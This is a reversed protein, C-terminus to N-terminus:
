ELDSEPISYGEIPTDLHANYAQRAEDQSQILAYRRVADNDRETTYALYLQYRRELETKTREISNLARRLLPPVLGLPASLVTGRKTEGGLFKEYTLADGPALADRPFPTNRFQNLNRVATALDAKLQRRVSEHAIAVPTALQKLLYPPIYISM